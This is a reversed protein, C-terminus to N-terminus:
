LGVLQEVATYVNCIVCHIISSNKELMNKKIIYYLSNVIIYWM